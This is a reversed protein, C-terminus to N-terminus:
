SSKPQTQPPRQEAKEQLVLLGPEWSEGNRHNVAGSNAAREKGAAPPSPAPPCVGREWGLEAPSWRRALVRRRRRGASAPLSGPSPATLWPVAAAGPAAPPRTGTGGHPSHTRLWERKPLHPSGLTRRHSSYSGPPHAPAEEMVGARRLERKGAGHVQDAGREAPPLSLAQPSQKEAPPLPPPRPICGALSLPHM